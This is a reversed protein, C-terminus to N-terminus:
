GEDGGIALAAVGLAVGGAAIASVLVRGRVPLTARGALTLALDTSDAVLAGLLWPVLGDPDGLAALTGVGLILDRAGLARALLSAGPRAADAGIWPRMTLSPYAVFGAGIALRCCATFRALERTGLTRQATVIRWELNM